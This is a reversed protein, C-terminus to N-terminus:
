SLTGQFPSVHERRAFPVLVPEPPGTVQHTQEKLAPPMGNGRFFTPLVSPAWTSLSVLLFTSFARQSTEKGDRSRVLLSPSMRLAEVSSPFPVSSTSGPSDHFHKSQPLCIQFPSIVDGFTPFADGWQQIFVAYFIELSWFLDRTVEGMVQM